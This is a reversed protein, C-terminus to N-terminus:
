KGYFQNPLYHCGYWDRKECSRKRIHHTCTDSRMLAGRVVREWRKLTLSTSVHRPDLLFPATHTLPLCLFKTRFHWRLSSPAQCLSQPGPYLGLQTPLPSPPVSSLSKKVGTQRGAWCKMPEKYSTRQLPPRATKSFVRYPATTWLTSDQYGESLPCSLLFFPCFSHSNPEM